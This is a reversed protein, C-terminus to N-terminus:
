PRITVGKRINIIKELSGIFLIVFYSCTLSIKRRIGCLAYFKKSILRLISHRLTSIFFFCYRFLYKSGLKMLKWIFGGRDKTKKRESYDRVRWPSGRSQLDNIDVALYDRDISNKVAAWRPLRQEFRYRM